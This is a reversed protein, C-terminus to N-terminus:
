WDAGLGAVRLNEGSSSEDWYPAGRPMLVGEWKGVVAGVQDRDTYFTAEGSLVLFIQDRNPHAHLTNEGGDAAVQVQLSLIDTSVVPSTRRGSELLNPNIRFTTLAPAAPPASTGQSERPEITKETM